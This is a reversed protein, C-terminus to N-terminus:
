GSNKSVEERCSVCYEEGDSAVRFEMEPDKVDTIGCESCTHFADGETAANKQFKSRRVSAEASSKMGKLVNPFIAVLFPLLSFIVLIVNFAVLPATAVQGVLLAVDVWAIWKMKIPIIGLLLIEYNPVYTAAAFIISSFFIFWMLNFVFIVNSLPSLAAITIFFIIAWVYVNLRFTGLADELIYNLFFLFLATIIFLVGATTDMGSKTQVIGGPIAVWSFLRWVEGSLIKAKDFMIMEVFGKSFKALILGLVQFGAIWRLIGPLALKGFKQEAAILLRNGFQM